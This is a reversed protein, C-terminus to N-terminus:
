LASHSTRLSIVLRTLACSAVPCPPTYQALCNCGMTLIRSPNSAMQKRRRGSQPRYSAKAFWRGIPSIELSPLAHKRIAPRRSWTQCCSPISGKMAQQTAAVAAPSVEPSTSPLKLRNRHRYDSAATNGTVSGSDGAFWFLYSLHLRYTILTRRGM